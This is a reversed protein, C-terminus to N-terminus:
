VAMTLVEDKQCQALESELRLKMRRKEQVLHEVDPLEQWCHNCFFYVDGHGIHRLLVNSCVPCSIM